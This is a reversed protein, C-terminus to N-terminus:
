DLSYQKQAETESPDNARAAIKLPRIKPKILVLLHNHVTDMPMRTDIDPFLGPLLEKITDHLGWVRAESFHLLQFGKLLLSNLWTSPDGNEEVNKQPSRYSILPFLCAVAVHDLVM